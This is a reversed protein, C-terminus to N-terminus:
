SKGKYGWPDTPQPDGKYGWPETPQPGDKSSGGARNSSSMTTFTNDFTDSTVTHTINAYIGVTSPLHPSAKQPSNPSSAHHSTIKTSTQQPSIHSRLPYYTPPLLRTVKSRKDHRTTSALCRTIKGGDSPVADNARRHPKGGRTRLRCPPTKSCLTNRLKTPIDCKGQSGANSGPAQSLSDYCASFKELLTM